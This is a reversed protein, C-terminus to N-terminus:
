LSKHKSRPQTQWLKKVETTSSKLIHANTLAGSDPTEAQNTNYQYFHVVNWTTQKPTPHNLFWVQRQKAVKEEATPSLLIAM